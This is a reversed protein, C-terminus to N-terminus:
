AGQKKAQYGAAEVAARALVRTPDVSPYDLRYDEFALPLETCGLVFAEAGLALMRSLAARVASADYEGASKGAKVGKYIMDMVAKQGKEDPTLFPVGNEEFLRAYIGTKVTGDTALLGVKKLGRRKIEEVTLRLMHLVPLPTAKCVGDYFYHATNCPMMLIDAGANELLRASKTLEPLPDAGGTLIAATRDPINVNSDILVHIHANDNPADTLAVIKRYLDATAMPGMGGIIGLTKKQM